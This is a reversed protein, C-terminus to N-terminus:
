SYRLVAVDKKGEGSFEVTQKEVHIQVNPDIETGPQTTGPCADIVRPDFWEVYPDRGDSYTVGIGTYTEWKQPNDDIGFLDDPEFGLGEGVERPTYKCFAYARDVEGGFVDNLAFTSGQLAAEALAPQHSACGAAVLPALLVISSLPSKRRRNRARTLM